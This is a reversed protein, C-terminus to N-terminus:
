MVIPVAPDTPLGFGHAKQVYVRLPSGPPLREALYTSAVGLRRRNGIDYRVADVTLAIRGPAAKPSSSISYLRPQLPDLAEVFAEPDPRISPFKEIAALVDLTEADGDPDEGTSLARAKKRREGGTIYSFLQFLMDPAPSLSVGDTLVERLTRGGIPFDAPAAIARIVADVLAPVNTPAIGFSDGVTYDLACGKLDIDIHWTEKNSGPKNLRTRKLFTADVPNDRSYGAVRQPAPAGPRAP